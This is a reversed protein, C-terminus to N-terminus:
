ARPYADPKRFARPSVGYHKRFLRSFHYPDEYGVRQAVEKIRLNRDKLLYAAQHLRQRILYDIAPTGFLRKFQACFHPVSLKAQKALEPLRIPAAYESEIFRRVALFPPPIEDKADEERAMARATERLWNELLNRVIGEDPRAHRTLEEHVALLCREMGAPDPVVFPENRPVGTSRLLSAIHRGDCHIWTHNYPHEGNGYYQRTGPTWIIFTNRPQRTPKGEAAVWVADYFLMLLYDGTGTPRDIICAPMHEQVGIGRVTLDASRLPPVPFFHKFGRM